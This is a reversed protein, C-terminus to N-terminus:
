GPTLEVALRCGAAELAANIQRIRSGRDPDALERVASASTGLRRALETESIGQARMASYLALKAATVVDVAM